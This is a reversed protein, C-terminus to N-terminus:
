YFVTFSDHNLNNATYHRNFKATPFKSMKIVLESDPDSDIIIVQYKTSQKYVINDAFTNPIDSRMYIIAPYKIHISEPPQFYVNDANDEGIINVLAEHLDLRNKM